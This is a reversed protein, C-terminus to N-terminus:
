QYKFFTKNAESRKFFDPDWCSMVLFYTYPQLLFLNKQLHLQLRESVNLHPVPESINSHRISSHGRFLINAPSLSLSKNPLVDHHFSYKSYYQYLVSNKPLQKMNWLKQQYVQYSVLNSITKNKPSLVQAAIATIYLLCIGSCLITKIRPM